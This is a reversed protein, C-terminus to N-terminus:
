YEEEKILYKSSYKQFTKQRSDETKHPSYEEHAVKFRNQLATPTISLQSSNISKPTTAIQRNSVNNNFPILNKDRLARKAKIKDTNPSPMLYFLEENRLSFEYGWKSLKHLKSQYKENQVFKKHLQTMGDLDEFDNSYDSKGGHLDSDIEEESSSHAMEESECSFYKKNKSYKIPIRDEETYFEDNIDISSNM